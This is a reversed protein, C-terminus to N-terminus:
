AGIEPNWARTANREAHGLEQESVMPTPGGEAAWLTRALPVAGAIMDDVFSAKRSDSADQDALGVLTEFRAKLFEIVPEGGGPPLEAASLEALVARVAEPGQEAASGELDPTMGLPDAAMGEAALWLRYKVLYVLLDVVTDSATDGAGAVGLRDVKRAINALIAVKEGRRKWSDGYVEHKQRHLDAVYAVFPDDQGSRAQVREYAALARREADDRPQRAPSALAAAKLRTGDLPALFEPDGIWYWALVRLWSRLMPEPFGDVMEKTYGLSWRGQRIAQEQAFWRGVLRDLDSLERAPGLNSALFRPSDRLEGLGALDAKRLRDAKQWHRDYIHLSGISFNLTGVQIGLLGAVIEQLASWEFANIGSWGWILDNSRTAVHLDLKGHRSLFHLWNNCPVDKGGEVDVAPDYISIVARRTTPDNRLLDVVHALQDVIFTGSVEEGGEMKHQLGVWSRLRPGYGGRWTTGDDSFEAARPLYNQLWSIDNRGSLIWMTEAIQAPLSAKRGPVLIERRWPEALEINVHTMEVTRDGQRSGVEDGRKILHGALDKLALDAATYTGTFM